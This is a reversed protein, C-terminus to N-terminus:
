RASVPDGDELGRLVQYPGIIVEAGEDLGGVEIDLGGIMGTEVPTFRAAGDSVTFVGRSESGDERSRIVVSQLPVVVVNKQEGVLIEADCTLGPRIGPPPDLLRIEVRFERAAAGATLQPLASAGVETVRGRFSREPLAELTVTAEQGVEVRLVDAEAVKVEANLESLDSVTMLVTGPQNQIGIVVMEGQRVQLRSVVGSIPAEISTKELIDRTRAAQAKTQLVRRRAAESTREASTVAARASSVRAKKSDALARASDLESPPVLEDRFLTEQCELNLSAERAEAEALELDARAAVVQEAASAAEAAFAQISAEAADLESQAQVPDIRALLDGASVEQGETVPLEVVRGMVSSGIDAYREALIEGSANVFSSFLERSEARGLDVEQGKEGGRGLAFFAIVLVLVIGIGAWRIRTM